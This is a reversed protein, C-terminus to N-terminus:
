GTQRPQTSVTASPGGYLIYALWTPRRLQRPHGGRAQGLTYGSLAARYSEQACTSASADTVEWLSGIVADAGVRLFSAAWGEVM